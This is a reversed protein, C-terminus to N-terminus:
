LLITWAFCELHSKDLGAFGGIAVLRIGDVTQQQNACGSLFAFYTLLFLAISVRSKAGM